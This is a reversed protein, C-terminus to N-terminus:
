YIVILNIDKPLRQTIERVTNGRLSHLFSYADDRKRALIVSNVKKQKAIEIISHSSHATITYLFGITGKESKAIVYDFVKRCGEDESWLRENDRDTTIRQERVFLVYLPIKRAKTEELAFDLSKSLGTVAVLIADKVNGNLMPLPNQEPTPVSIKEAQEIVLARLLLGIGIVAIVFGRAQPKDIFLTIEILTMVACTGMMLAREWPKLSLTFNTSTAGLNIAIAGVFGIAYLNALGAVDSIFMLM